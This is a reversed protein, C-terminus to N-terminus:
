DKKQSEIFRDIIKLEKEMKIINLLIINKTEKKCRFFSYSKL